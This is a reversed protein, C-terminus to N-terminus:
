ISQATNNRQWFMSYEIEGTSEDLQEKNIAFGERLYFRVARQNKQYVGLSLTPYLAKVHNLLQRGIGASRHAKDVFIGAIYGDMVGVFGYINGDAEYLYIDAQPLQDAVLPYNDIWYKQPIFDHADINSNLWIQLLQEMDTKQATRIM